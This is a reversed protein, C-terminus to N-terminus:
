TFLSVMDGRGNLNNELFEHNKYPTVKVGKRCSQNVQAHTFTERNDQGIRPEFRRASERSNKVQMQVQYDFPSILISNIFSFILTAM